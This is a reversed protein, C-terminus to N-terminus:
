HPQHFHVQLVLESSTCPSCFVTICQVCTVDLMKLYMGLLYLIMDLLKVYHMVSFNEEDGIFSGIDFYLLVFLRISLSATLYQM